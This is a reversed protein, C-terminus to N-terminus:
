NLNIPLTFRYCLTPGTQTTAQTSMQTCPSLPDSVQALSERCCAAELISVLYEENLNNTIDAVSWMGFPDWSVVRMRLDELREVGTAYSSM